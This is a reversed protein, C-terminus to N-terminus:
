SARMSACWAAQLLSYSRADVVPENWSLVLEDVDVLTTDVGQGTWTEAFARSFANFFPQSFRAKSRRFILPDPLVGGFLERM